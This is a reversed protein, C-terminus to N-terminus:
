CSYRAASQYYQGYASYPYTQSAATYGSFTDVNGSYGVQNLYYFYYFGLALGGIIFVAALSNIAINWGNSSLMSEWTSPESVVVARDVNDNAKSAKEEKKEVEKKEDGQPAAFACGLIVFALLIVFFKSM